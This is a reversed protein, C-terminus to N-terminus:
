SKDGISGSNIVVVGNEHYYNLICDGYVFTDGNALAYLWNQTIGVDKFFKEVYMFDKLKM